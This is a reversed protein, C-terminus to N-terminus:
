ILTYFAIMDNRKVNARYDDGFIVVNGCRCASDGNSITLLLDGCCLCKVYVDSGIRPWLGDRNYAIEKYILNM